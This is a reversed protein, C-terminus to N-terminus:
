HRGITRKKTAVHHILTPAQAFASYGTKDVSPAHAVKLTGIPEVTWGPAQAGTSDYHSPLPSGYKSASQALASTHGSVALGVLGLAIQLYRTQTGPTKM